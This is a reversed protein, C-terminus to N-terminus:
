AHPLIVIKGFGAGDKIARWAKPADDLAFRQGVVPKVKKAAVFELLSAEAKELLQPTERLTMMTFGLVGTAKSILSAFDIQPPTRGVAGYVVVRGLPKLCKMLQATTEGGVADFAGDAGGLGAVAAALDEKSTVVVRDAGLESIREAKEESRTTAIVYLRMAKAMQVAIHGVGGSAATIVVTQGEQLGLLHILGGWATLGALWFGGSEEDTFEEPTRILDDEGCVVYQSFAGAVRGFGVSGQRFTVREGTVWKGVGMGIAEVVGAGEFGPTYPLPPKRFYYGACILVDVPNLGAAAVKVLVKGPGPAPVPSDAVTMATENGLNEFVISKM